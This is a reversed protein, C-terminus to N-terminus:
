MLKNIEDLTSTLISSIGNREFEYHTLIRGSVVDIASCYKPNLEFKKSFNSKLHRFLLDSFMGVEEIKYGDKKAVFWIAGIGEIGNKKYKFIYNPQVQVELGKIFISPTTSSRKLFEIKELPRLKSLNLTKCKKLNDINRQYMDRTLKRKESDLKGNLEDIKYDLLRLDEQKFSNSVASVSTVWYNGGGDTPVEIKSSKINQVFSKKGRPTKGRFAILKQISLKKM